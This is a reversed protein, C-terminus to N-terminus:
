LAVHARKAAGYLETVLGIADVICANLGPGARVLPLLVSAVHVRELAVKTEFLDEM